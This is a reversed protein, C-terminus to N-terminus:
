AMFFRLCKSVCPLLVWRAPVTRLRSDMAGNATTELVMSCPWGGAPGCWMSRLKRAARGARNFYLDLVLVPM